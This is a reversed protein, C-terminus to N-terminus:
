IKESLKRLFVLPLQSNMSRWGVMKVRRRWFLMRDILSCIWPVDKSFFYLSNFCFQYNLDNDVAREINDIQIEFSVCIRSLLLIDNVNIKSLVASQRLLDVNGSGKQIKLSFMENDCMVCYLISCFIFLISKISPFKSNSLFRM